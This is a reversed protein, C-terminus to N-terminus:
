QVSDKRSAAQSTLAMHLSHHLCAAHSSVDALASNAARIGKVLRQLPSTKGVHTM